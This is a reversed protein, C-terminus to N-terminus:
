EDWWRPSLIGTRYSAPIALAVAGIIIIIGQIWKIFLSKPHWNGTQGLALVPLAVEIAYFLPIFKPYGEPPVEGKRWDPSLLADVDSPLMRWLECESQETTGNGLTFAFVSPSTWKQPCLAGSFLLLGGAIALPFWWLTRFPKYGYGITLRLLWHRAKRLPGMVKHRRKELEFGVDRAWNTHGTARYVQMLQEYPQPYFKGGRSMLGVWALRGKVREKVANLRQYRFGDINLVIDNGKDDKYVEADDQFEGLVNTGALSLQTLKCNNLFLNGGITTNAFSVPSNASFSEWEGKQNHKRPVLLVDSAVKVSQAILANGEENLFSGTCIIQGGIEAGFLWVAGEANFRDCLFVTGAVKIGQANLAAKGKSQFSGGTCSLQGGIEAGSLSVEGVAKFENRLFVDGTVKTSQANLAHGGENQFSGGTCDLQGGIEASSLWVASEGEFEGRLFVDGTVKISQANLAIGKKNHFSGDTCTIQGGVEAGSLWVAGVAKFGDYLIVDSAVKINQAILAYGGENQFSGGKCNLQGGVKAGSLNVAGVAKFEKIRKGDSDDASLFVDAAVTIHQAILANGKKNQFSGGTCDLQGGIAAGSLRVQDQANVKTLHVDGAVKAGLADIGEKLACGRFDLEPCTLQQLKIEQAFSCDRFRVPFKIECFEMNLVGSINAGVIVTGLYDAKDRDYHGIFVSRLFDGRVEGEASVGPDGARFADLV